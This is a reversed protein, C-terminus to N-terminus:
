YNISYQANFEEMIALFKPPLRKKVENTISSSIEQYFSHAIAGAVSAMPGVGCRTSASIMLRAIPPAETDDVVPNLADRFYPNNSIYCELENRLYVIKEAASEYVSDLIRYAASHYEFRRYVRNM